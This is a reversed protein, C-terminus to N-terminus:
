CVGMRYLKVTQWNDDYLRATECGLSVRVGDMQHRPQIGSGGVCLVNAIGVDCCKRQQDFVVAERRRDRM